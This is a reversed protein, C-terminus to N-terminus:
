VWELVISWKAGDPWGQSCPPCAKANQDVHGPEQWRSPHVCNPLKSSHDSRPADPSESRLVAPPTANSSRSLDSLESYILEEAFCVESTLNGGRGEGSPLGMLLDRKTAESKTWRTGTPLRSRRASRKRGRTCRTQRGASSPPSHRTQGHVLTFVEGLAAKLSLSTCGWSNVCLCM